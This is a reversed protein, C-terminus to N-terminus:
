SYRRMLQILQLCGFRVEHIITPVLDKHVSVIMVTNKTHAVTRSKISIAGNLM